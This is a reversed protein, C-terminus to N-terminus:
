LLSSFTEYTTLLARAVPSCHRTSVDNCSVGIFTGLKRTLKKEKRLFELEDTTLPSAHEVDSTVESLEDKGPKEDGFSARKEDEMEPTSPFSAQERKHYRSPLTSLFAFSSVVPIKSFRKGAATPNGSDNYGDHHGDGCTPRCPDAIMCSHLRLGWM